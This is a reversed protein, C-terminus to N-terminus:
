EGRLFGIAADGFAVRLVVVKLAFLLSVFLIEIGGHERNRADNLYELPQPDQPHRNWAVRFPELAERTVIWPSITTAFNKGLFPGLPQAEWGQIDRASWDNLLCMGFFHEEAEAIPITSEIANGKGIFIGLELEFDRPKFIRLSGKAPGLKAM